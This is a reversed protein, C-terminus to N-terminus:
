DQLSCSKAALLSQTIVIYYGARVYFVVHLSTNRKTEYVTALHLLPSGSNQRTVLEFASLAHKLRQKM